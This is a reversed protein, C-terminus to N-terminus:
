EIIFDPPLLGTNKLTQLFAPVAIDCMDIKKRGSLADAIFGFIGKVSEGQFFRFAEQIIGQTNVDLAKMGRTEIFRDAISSSTLSASRYSMVLEAEEATLSYWKDQASMSLTGLLIAITIILNNM